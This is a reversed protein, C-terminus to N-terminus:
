TKSQQEPLEFWQVTLPKARSIKSEASATISLKLTQQLNAEVKLQSPVLLWSAHHQNDQQLQSVQQPQGNVTLQGQNITLQANQQWDIAFNQPEIQVTQNQNHLTISAPQSQSALALLPTCTILLSCLPKYM